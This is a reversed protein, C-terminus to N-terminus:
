SVSMVSHVSRKNTTLAQSSTLGFYHVYRDPLREPKRNVMWRGKMAKLGIHNMNLFYCRKTWPYTIAGLQADLLEFTPDWQLPIGKFYLGSVGADLGVGGKESVTVQRQIIGSSGGAANRYADLFTAGVVIHTPAKGGKLTCARWQKEMEDILNATSVAMSCNNRWYLSTSADLGGVTGTAPTTDVIADLGVMAKASQSGDLLVELAMGEQISERVGMYATEVLNVLQQKEEATPTASGDDTMVIGNAALRDEDFWFGDHSNAYAFKAQRVQDRENYTVADAGFYNQYNSGNSIYITENYYGNGFVVDKKAAILAKLLPRDQNVQDVPSNRKFTEITANAGIALQTPTFPM